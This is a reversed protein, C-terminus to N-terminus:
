EKAPKSEEKEEVPGLLRKLEERLTQGRANLSVVKGQKDVLLMTPWASIGYYEITPSPGDKGYLITWPIPNNQLFKELDERKQDGSIGVIEFGRDRYAEYLRKMEPIEKICWGCWTAWFDILVVKGQRFKEWNFEKGDLTVGQIEIPKGLLELRRVVAEWRKVVREAVPLKSKAVLQSFQRYAEVALDPMWYELEQGIRAMLQLEPMGVEEEGLFQFIKQLHKKKEEPGPLERWQVLLLISRIQRALDKKGEKQLQEGFKTLQDEATPDGLQLLMILGQGKAQIAQDRQEPTPKGALVKDAAEAMSKHLKRLFDIMQDRSTIDKIELQRLGEIYKLLEEPSGEPVKFPDPEPKEQKEGPKPSQKEPLAKQTKSPIKQNDPPTIQKAQPTEQKESPSKQPEKSAPPLPPSKEAAKEPPASAVQGAAEALEGPVVWGAPLSEVAAAPMWWGLWGMVMAVCFAQMVLEEKLFDFATFFWRQM